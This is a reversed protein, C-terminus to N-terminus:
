SQVRATVQVLNGDVALDLSMGVDHVVRALGLCARQGLTERRRVERGYTEEPSVTLDHVQDRLRDARSAVTENTVVIEITEGIQRLEYSIEAAMASYAVANLLLERTALALAQATTPTFRSTVYTTVFDHITDVFDSGPKCKVNVLSMAVSPLQQSRLSQPPPRMSPRVSSLPARDTPPAHM